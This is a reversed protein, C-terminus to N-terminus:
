PTVEFTWGNIVHSYFGYYKRGNISFMVSHDTYALVKLGRPLACIKTPSFSHKKLGPSFEWCDIILNFAKEEKFTNM